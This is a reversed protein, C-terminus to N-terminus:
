GKIFMIAGIVAVAGVLLINNDVGNVLNKSGIPTQTANEYSKQVKSQQQIADIQAKTSLVNIATGGLGNISSNLWDLSLGSSDSSSDSSTVYGSVGSLWGDKYTEM